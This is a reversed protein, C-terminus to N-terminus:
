AEDARGLAFEQASESWCELPNAEKSVGPLGRKMLTWWAADLKVFSSGDVQMTQDCRTSFSKGPWEKLSYDTTTRTIAVLEVKM